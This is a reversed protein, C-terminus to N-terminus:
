DERPSRRLVIFTSGMTTKRCPQRLVTTLEARRLLPKGRGSFRRWRRARVLLNHAAREDPRDLRVPLRRGRRELECVRAIPEEHREPFVETSQSFAGRAAIRALTREGSDRADFYYGPADASVPSPEAVVMEVPQQTVLRLDDGEYEFIFRIARRPQFPTGENSM